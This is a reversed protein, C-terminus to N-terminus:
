SSNPVEMQKTSLLQDLLLEDSTIFTNNQEDYIVEECREIAELIFWKETCELSLKTTVLTPLIASMVQAEHLHEPFATFYAVTGLDREQYFQSKDTSHFLKKGMVSHKFDM